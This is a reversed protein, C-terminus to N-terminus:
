VMDFTYPKRMERSLMKNAEDDGEFQRKSPNYQLKKGGLRLSINGIHCVNVSSAGVDVHCIPDKRSRLCEFFNGMHDNSVYLRTANSALPEKLLKDDSARITTRSVFIEGKEGKFLVGNEGDSKCKLVTGTPYKYTIEFQYHVNYCNPRDDAKGVSEVSTPGNGDMGLAWQAIDNHHAGWDTVKGGSYEYWWRFQYHCREKVYPVKATQGLWFDWNLEPPAKTVQFPGEPKIGGIRTEVTQIQGIRGNRVLECALRFRADSRQQSGVQLIVNNGRVAKVLAEAEAVTLTMPKELYIDKKAKAAAVAPLTHWHDPTVIVVADIDNRGVLERFDEYKAIQKAKAEDGEAINWATTERRVKDVDCVAVIEWGKDKHRFLDALLQHKVPGGEKSKHIGGFRDGTGIVGFRIRDNPGFKKAAKEQQDALVQKAYWEPLGAAVLTGLSSALFGRRSLGSPHM